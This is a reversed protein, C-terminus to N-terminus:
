QKDKVYVSNRHYELYVRQRQKFTGTNRQAVERLGLRELDGSTLRPSVKVNGNDEFSILGRDFLRDVHPTLLLGNAGDLREETTSDRWPKIHSAVLLRPNTIGTLRCAKEFAGVRVRFLGQGIRTKVTQERETIAPTAAYPSREEASRDPGTDAPGIWFPDGRGISVLLRFLEEPIKALYAVQNGGGSKPNLPSYKEPLWPRVEELHGKPRVPDPLRRWEVPLRWGINTWTEGASGYEVPKPAEFAAQTVRGVYAIRGDAYSLVGDGPRALTMNVYFQSRRGNKTEKPSWLYGGDIEQRATQKHNVWWYRM